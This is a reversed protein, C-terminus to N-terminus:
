EHIKRGNWMSRERRLQVRDYWAGIAWMVFCLVLSGIFVLCSIQFGTRYSGVFREPPVYVAIASMFAFGGLVGLAALISAWEILRKM